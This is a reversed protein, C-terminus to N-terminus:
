IEMIKKRILMKETETKCLDLARQLHSKANKNDLGFHLEALLLHYFHNKGLNLKDAEQIAIEKGRSRSLAYTRNLATIPSYAISLLRNYLQLINEWKESTDDKITYWYAISAELFYISIVPWEASKQLYYNGREILESNWLSTDQNHYMVMEGGEGMRADLRSAQFCMLAMLANTLHQNTPRFELLLYNLRMAELCLDKRIVSESRESYYGESFLLYITKLVAELRNDIEGNGSMSLQVDGMRLKEKARYLRKNITEKNTLFADAIEDIGFGCLIRLALSIQSEAPLSPHCVAFLMQLQSDKINPETLDIDIEEGGVYEKQIQFSIKRSFLQDKKLYNYTKNKAVSYLWAKPNEPIGQYPWIEMASMFTDSVIDEAIEVHEIGFLRSLVAVIKSYESRFLHPIPDSEKM